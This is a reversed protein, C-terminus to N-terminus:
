GQQGPSDKRRVEVTVDAGKRSIVVEKVSGDAFIEDFFSEARRELRTSDTQESGAPGIDDRSSSVGMGNAERHRFLRQLIVNGAAPAVVCIWGLQSIWENTKKM